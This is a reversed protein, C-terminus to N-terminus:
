SKNKPSECDECFFEEASTTSDLLKYLTNAISSGHSLQTLGNSKNGEQASLLINLMEQCIPQLRNQCYSLLKAKEENLTRHTM